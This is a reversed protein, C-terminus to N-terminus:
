KLFDMGIGIIKLFYPLVVTLCELRGILSVGESIRESGVDRCIDSCIGTVYGIGVIKILVAGIETVGSVALIEEADSFLVGLREAALALLCVAPVAAALRSGKFGLESLFYASIASILAFGAVRIM